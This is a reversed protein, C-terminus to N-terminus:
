ASLVVATVAVSVGIYVSYPRVVVNSILKVRISLAMILGIVM